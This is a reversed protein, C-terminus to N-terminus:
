EDTEGTSLRCLYRVAYFVPITILTSAATTTLSLLLVYLKDAGVFVGFFVYRLGHFLVSAGLTCICASAVHNRIYTRTVIGTAMGVLWYYFYLFPALPGATIGAFLAAILGWLGGVSPGEMMALAVVFPLLQVQEGLLRLHTGRASQLVFLVVLLLLYSGYKLAAKKNDTM